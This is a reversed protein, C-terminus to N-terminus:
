LSQDGDDGRQPMTLLHYHPDELGDNRMSALMAELYKRLLTRGDLDDAFRFEIEVNVIHQKM